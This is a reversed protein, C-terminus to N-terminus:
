ILCRQGFRKSFTRLYSHAQSLLNIASYDVLTFGNLAIVKRTKTGLSLWQQGGKFFIYVYLFLIFVQTYFQAGVDTGLIFLNRLIQPKM